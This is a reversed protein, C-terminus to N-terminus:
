GQKEREVIRMVVTTRITSVAHDHHWVMKDMRAPMELLFCGTVDNVIYINNNGYFYYIYTRLRVFVPM